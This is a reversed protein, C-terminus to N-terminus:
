IMTQGGTASIATGTLYGGRDSALFAVMNGVDEPTQFRGLPIQSLTSAKVEDETIGYYRAYMSWVGDSSASLPTDVTGPCVANVTIGQSGLEKAAVQTIGIIGFKSAVYASLLPWALKGAQSAINIIRGGGGQAIFQRAAAQMGFFTGKLNVDLTQSLGRDTVHIMEVSELAVGANNVFIDLRGFHEVAAAVLATVEDPRTVDCRVGIADIGLARLGEVTEDLEERRAVNYEPVRDLPRGIESVVIRAGDRGLVRCIGQGIGGERGAGTIVAVRGELPGANM